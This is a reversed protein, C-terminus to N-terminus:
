RDEKFYTSTSGFRQKPSTNPTSELLSNFRSMTSYPKGERVNVSHSTSHITVGSKGVALTNSKNFTVVKSTGNTPSENTPSDGFEDSQYYSEDNEDMATNTVQSNFSDAFGLKSKSTNWHMMHRNNKDKKTNEMDCLVKDIFQKHGTRFVDERSNLQILGREILSTRKFAKTKYSVTLRGDSATANPTQKEFKCRIGTHSLDPFFKTTHFGIQGDQKPMHPATVVKDLYPRPNM